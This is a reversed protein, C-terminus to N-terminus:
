RRKKTFVLRGNHDKIIFYDVDLLNKWKLLGVKGEVKKPSFPLVVLGTGKMSDFRISSSLRDSLFNVGADGLFKAYERRSYRDLPSVSLFCTLMANRRFNADLRYWDHTVLISFIIGEKLGTDEMMQHRMACFRRQDKKSLSVSTADDFIIIQIPKSADWGRDVNGKFGYEMLVSTSVQTYVVNTKEKGYFGSIRTIINEILKTKGIGMTGAVIILMQKVREQTSNKFVEEKPVCLFKYFDETFDKFPVVSDKEEPLVGKARSM